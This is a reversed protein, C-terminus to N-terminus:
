IKWINVIMEIGFTVFHYHVRGGGGPERAKESATSTGHFSSSMESTESPAWCGLSGTRFPSSGVLLLYVTRPTKGM